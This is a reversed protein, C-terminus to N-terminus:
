VMQRLRLSSKVRSAKNAFLGLSRNSSLSSSRCHIPMGAAPLSIYHVNRLLAVDNLNIKVGAGPLFDHLAPRCKDQGALLEIVVAPNGNHCRDGDRNAANSQSTSKWRIGFGVAANQDM